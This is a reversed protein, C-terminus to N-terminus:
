RNSKKRFGMFVWYLLWAFVVPGIGVYLFRVLNGKWPQLLAAIAAPYIVSAAIAIRLRGTVQLSPQQTSPAGRQSGMLRPLFLIALVIGAVILIEQFGSVRKGGPFNGSPVVNTEDTCSQRCNNRCVVKSSFLFGNGWAFMAM